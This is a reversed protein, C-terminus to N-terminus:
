KRSTGSRRADRSFGCALSRPRFVASWCDVIMGFGRIADPLRAIEEPELQIHRGYGDIIAEVLREDGGACTLLTGLPLIRPGCGAGTWDILVPGDASVIVNPTSFDPHILAEPLRACDDLRSLRERFVEYLPDTGEALLRDLNQSTMGAGAVESRCTTGRDGAPGSIAPMTGQLRGLLEGLPLLVIACRSDEAGGEETLRQTVLVGRGDMTSVPEPCACREAPFGQAALFCLIEADGETASISRVPPSLRAIWRRGDAWDIGYVTADLASVASVKGGYTRELHAGLLVDTGPPRWIQERWAEILPM